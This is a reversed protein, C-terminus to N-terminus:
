AHGHAITCLMQDHLAYTSTEFLITVIKISTLTCGHYHMGVGLALQFCAKIVSTAYALIM